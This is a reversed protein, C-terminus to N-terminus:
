QPPTYPPPPVPLAALANSRLGCSPRRQLPTRCAATRGPIGAPTISHATGPTGRCHGVWGAESLSVAPPNHSLCRQLRMAVCAAPPAGSCPPGAPLPPPRPAGAPTISHATGPTGRCHGVWGAESLSVAPPNHSLCRQLRMAVCAAPPAGSCPPGAPLPPPWPTRGPIRWLLAAGGGARHRAM